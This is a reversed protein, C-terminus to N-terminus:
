DLDNNEALFNRTIEAAKALGTRLVEVGDPFANLLRTPMAGDLMIFIGRDRSHRILRGYAQKLRLRCLMEDFKRGGFHQRRARHLITPRPWPVRDFVILRLSHGPVDIGDRVADTGLLCSNQEARFIDVLTGIDLPDVHQALVEIGAKDLDAAIRGHVVRLRNIATFLGLAGGNSATFLTRYAAAVQRADAKRVDTVILVKTSQAYDFPSDFNKLIAPTDLHDAGTRTKASDWDDGDRLTASTILVGHAPKIVTEVFPQTPDVWHRFMGIDSDNGGRREVSFWDVFAKPTEHHLSAVMDRWASLPMIARREVGRAVAEMRNRTASDLADADKDMIAFIRETLVKLSRILGALDKELATAAALLGDIAPQTDTELSYASDPRDNRAYVQQRVKSLFVETAGRPSDGSQRQQWGSSALVHAGRLIDDLATEAEDDGAILDATRTRLGRSRSRSSAEAGILWRRLDATEFGSLHAAFASDAADFLHHGEDFVYRTPLAADAANDSGGMAAHVMVLAHNAVVIDARRARRQSHEIFCKKYHSCASYICEGRTDTLELTQSRGLLDVLWAPFDGGIMDGDRSDLLWRALLGLHVVPSSLGPMHLTPARGIAEEFNLLCIYNERGKRIVVRAAKEHPMPCLRDLERDLQRQLNRTYTSLWVTGRNKEAWVSSPAIYGLTKGIGTGAEAIIVHPHQVEERPAFAHSVEAAYDLQHTRQESSQGLLQVLRARAEVPEVPRNEPPPEPAGDEWEPLQSWIKLGALKNRPEAMGMKGWGEALVDLIIRGWVWGADAMAWAIATTTKDAVKNTRALQGLLAGACQSLIVAEDEHSPPLALDLAQALGGPTPLCFTAPRVFAFLELVDYALFPKINLRRATAKAHCVYPIVGDTKNGSLRNSLAEGSLAEVEGDQSLWVAGHATAIVTPANPLNILTQDDTM